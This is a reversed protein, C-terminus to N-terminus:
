IKTIDQYILLPKIIYDATEYIEKQLFLSLMDVVGDITTPHTDIPSSPHIKTVYGLIFWNASTQDSDVRLLNKYSTALFDEDLIGVIKDNLTSIKLEYGKPIFENISKEDYYDLYSLIQSNALDKEPPFLNASDFFYPDHQLKKILMLKILALNRIKINGKVLILSTTSVIGSPIKTLESLNLYNLLETLYYDLPNINKSINKDTKTSSNKNYSASLDGTLFNLIKSGINFGSSKSNSNSDSLNVSSTIGSFIQSYLSDLIKTNKYLYDRMPLGKSTKITM